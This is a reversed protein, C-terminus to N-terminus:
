KLIIEAIYEFAEITRIGPNSFFLTHDLDYIRNNQYADLERFAPHNDFQEDFMKKTQDIDGHAIRFIIDPNLAIAEELSFPVYGANIVEFQIGDTVNKVGYMELITGVYSENTGFMISDGSGFMIMATIDDVENLVNNVLSIRQEEIDNVINTATEEIDFIIGFAEILELTDYYTQNSAFWANYGQAELQHQLGVFTSPAIILDPNLTALIEMDPNSTLGVDVSNPYLGLLDPRAALNANGVIQQVGLTHLIELTTAALVVVREPTQEIILESGDPQYVTITFASEEIYLVEESEINSNTENNNTSNCGTLFTISIILLAINSLIQM